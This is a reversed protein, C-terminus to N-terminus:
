CQGIALQILVDLAILPLWPLRSRMVVTCACNPDGLEDTAGRGPGLLTGGLLNPGHQSWAEDLNETPVM